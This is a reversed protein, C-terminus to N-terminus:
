PTKTLLTKLFEEGTAAPGGITRQGVNSHTATGAKPKYRRLLSGGAKQAAEVADDEAEVNRAALYGFALGALIGLIQIVAYFGDHVNPTKSDVYLFLGCIGGMVAGVFFGFAVIVGTRLKKVRRDFSSEDGDTQLHIHTNLM